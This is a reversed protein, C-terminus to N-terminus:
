SFIKVGFFYGDNIRRALYTNSNRGSNIIRHFSLYPARESHNYKDEEKEFVRYFPEVEIYKYVKTM